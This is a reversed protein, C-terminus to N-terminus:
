AAYTQASAFLAVTGSASVTVKANSGGDCIEVGGEWSFGGEIVVVKFEYEGPAVQLELTYTLGDETSMLTGTWGEMGGALYVNVGEPIASTFTITFVATAATSAFIDIKSGDATNLDIGVRDYHTGMFDEEPSTGALDVYAYEDGEVLSLMINGGQSNIEIYAPESTEVLTQSWVDSGSAPDILSTDKCVLIKYEYSTCLINTFKLTWSYGDESQTAVAADAAWGNFGGMFLVSANEGLVETFTVRLTTEKLEMPEDLATSWTHTGLDITDASGDWEFSANSPYPYAACEDSKLSWNIGVKNEDVPLNSAANYGLTLAYENWQDNSMTAALAAKDIMVYWIDSGSVNKMELITASTAWGTYGGTLYITGYAPIEVSSKFYLTVKGAEVPVNASGQHGECKGKCADETCTANTCKGCIECKSQCTHSEHGECKDKCAAETCEADLCKGCIECKNTCEHQTCAVLVFVSTVVMALVVLMAFLKKTNKM